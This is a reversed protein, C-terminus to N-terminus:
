INSTKYTIKYYILKKLNRVFTWGDIQDGMKRCSKIPRTAFAAAQSSFDLSGERQDDGGLENPSFALTNEPWRLSMIQGTHEPDEGMTPHVQLHGLPM